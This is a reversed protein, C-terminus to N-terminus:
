FFMSLVEIFMFHNLRFIEAENWPYLDADLASFGSPHSSCNLYVKYCNKKQKTATTTTTIITTIFDAYWRLMCVWEIFVRKYHVIVSSNLCVNVGYKDSRIDDTAAAFCPITWDAICDDDDYCCYMWLFKSMREIPKCMCADYVYTCVCACAQALLICMWVGRWNNKQIMRKIKFWWSKERKIKYNIFAFLISLINNNIVIFHWKIFLNTSAPQEFM